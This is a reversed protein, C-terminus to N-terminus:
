IVRRRLLGAATGGLLLLGSVLWLWLSAPSTSLNSLTVATPSNVFDLTGVTFNSGLEAVNVGWFQVQDGDIEVTAGSVATIDEFAGSTGARRLLRYNSTPGAPLCCNNMRGESLDFIIDVTGGNSNADTVDVYWHREWRQPNYATAWDGTTPLDATTTMNTTTRHGFLLWDGDDQLFTQNRV